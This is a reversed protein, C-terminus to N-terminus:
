RRKRVDELFRIALSGQLFPKRPRVELIALGRFDMQEIRDFLLRWDTEPIDGTGPTYHDLGADPFVTECEPLIDQIHLHILRAELADLYEALSKSEKKWPYSTIPYARDPELYVHGIDLCVRLGEVNEIAEVLFDFGGNELALAVNRDAAYSVIERTLSIDPRYKEGEDGETFDCLDTPHIVLVEVGCQQAGSIQAKHEELTRVGGTHLSRRLGLEDCLTRVRESMRLEFLNREKWQRHLEVGSYGFQKIQALVDELEPLGGELKQYNHYAFNWLSLGYNPAM